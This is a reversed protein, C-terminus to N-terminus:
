QGALTLTTVAAEAKEPDLCGAVICSVGALIQCFVLIPKRGVHDMFLVCFIYSPIEIAASLVFNVYTDGVLNVSNLSLGYYCMTTVIWNVFMIITNKAVYWRSFLSAFGLQKTQDNNLSASISDLSDLVKQPIKRKNVAAGSFSILLLNVLTAHWNEITGKILIKKATGVRRKALLWRPSEPLLFWLLTLCFVIISISLQLDQWDQILYALLGLLMEGIAYAVQFLGLSM